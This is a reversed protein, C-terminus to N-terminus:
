GVVVKQAADDFTVPQGSQIAAICMCLAVFHNYGAEIDANPTARNRVCEM